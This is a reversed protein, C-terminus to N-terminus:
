KQKGQVEKVAKEFREQDFGKLIKEDNGIVIVPVGQSKYKGTLEKMAADDAEVDHNTFPINNSTFYEKAAKCHPCWAVSYLVIRPYKQQVAPQPNLPSQPAANEAAGWAAVSVVLFLLSIVLKTCRLM